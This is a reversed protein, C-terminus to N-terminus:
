SPQSYTSTTPKKYYPLKVLGALIEIEKKIIPAIWQSAQLYRETSFYNNQSNLFVADLMLKTQTQILTDTEPKKKKEVKFTPWEIYIAEQTDDQINWLFCSDYIGLVSRTEPDFAIYLYYDLYIDDDYKYNLERSSKKIEFEPNCGYGGLNSCNIEIVDNPQLECTVRKKKDISFKLFTHVVRVFSGILEKHLSSDNKFLNLGLMTIMKIKLYQTTQSKNKNTPNFLKKPHLKAFNQMKLDGSANLYATLNGYYSYSYNTLTPWTEITSPCSNFTQM